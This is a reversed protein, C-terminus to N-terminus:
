RKARASRPKGNGSAAKARRKRPRRPADPYVDTVKIGLRKAEEDFLELLTKKEKM